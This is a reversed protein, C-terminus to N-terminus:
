TSLQDGFKRSLTDTVDELTLLGIIRQQVGPYPIVGGTPQCIKM